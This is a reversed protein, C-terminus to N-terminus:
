TFCTTPEATSAPAPSSTTVPKPSTRSRWCPQRSVQPRSCPTSAAKSTPSATRWSRPPRTPSAPTSPASSPWPSATRPRRMATSSSRPPRTSPCRGPGTAPDPTQGAHIQRTEFSQTMIHRRRTRTLRGHHDARNNTTIDSSDEVRHSGRHSRTMNMDGPTM